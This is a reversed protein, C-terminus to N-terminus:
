VTGMTKTEGGVRPGWLLHLRLGQRPISAKKKKNLLIPFIGLVRTEMRSYEQRAM